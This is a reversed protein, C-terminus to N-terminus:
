AKEVISSQPFIIRFTSGEGIVSDIEIKGNHKKVCQQVFYLGIGYGPTDSDVDVRKFRSFIYELNHKEIGTGTDQCEIVFSRSKNDDEKTVYARITVSGKKKNYKIGNVILNQIIQTLMIQDGRFKPIDDDVEISLQIDTKFLHHKVMSTAWYITEKLDFVSTELVKGEEQFKSYKLFFNIQKEQYVAAQFIMDIFELVQKDEVEKLKQRILKVLSIISAAPNRMEHSLFSMNSSIISNANALDSNLKHLETKQNRLDTTIKEIVGLSKALVDFEVIKYEVREVRKGKSINKAMDHLSLAPALIKSGLIWFFIMFCGGIIINRFIISIVLELEMRRLNDGKKYGGLIIVPNISSVIYTDFCYDGMTVKKKFHQVKRSHNHLMGLFSSPGIDLYESPKIGMSSTIIRGRRDILIFAFDNYVSKKIEKTFLEINIIASIYGMFNNEKDHLGCGVSLLTDCNNNAAKPANLFIEGPSKKCRRLWADKEFSSIDTNICEGTFSNVSTSMDETLYDFVFWNLSKNDVSHSDFLLLESVKKTSFNAQTEILRSVYHLMKIVYGLKEEVDFNLIITENEMWRKTKQLYNTYMISTIWFCLIFVLISIISMLIKHLRNISYKRVRNRHKLM